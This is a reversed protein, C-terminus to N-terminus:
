PTDHPFILKYLLKTWIPSQYRGTALTAPKRSHKEYILWMGSGVPFETIQFSGLKGLCTRIEM